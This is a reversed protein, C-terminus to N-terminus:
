GADQRASAAASIRKRPAVTQAAPVEAIDPVSDPRASTKKPATVVEDEVDIADLGNKTIRLAM